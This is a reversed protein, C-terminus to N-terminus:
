LVRRVGPVDVAMPKEAFVHVGAEVCAELHAPRFHPPEALLAVQVGSELLKRCGDFGTFCRDPHVSVQASNKRQLTKLSSELRDPFADAMAVLTANPAMSLANAAAGSGRGGCGVLGIKVADSGAAYASRGIPLTAAAVSAGAFLGSNVLFERRSQKAGANEQESM